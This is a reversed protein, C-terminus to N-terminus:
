RSARRREPAGRAGAGGEGDGGRHRAPQAAALAGEDVDRHEFARQDRHSPRYGVEQDRPKLRTGAAVVVEGGRGRSGEPGAGAKEVDRRVLLLLELGQDLDDPALLQRRVRAKGITFAALAVPRRQGRLELVGQAALRGRLPLRAEVADADRGAKGIQEIAEM